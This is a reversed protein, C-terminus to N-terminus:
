TTKFNSDNQLKFSPRYLKLQKWEWFFQVLVSKNFFM